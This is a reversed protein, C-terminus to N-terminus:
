DAVYMNCWQASDLAMALNALNFQGGCTMEDYDSYRDGDTDAKAPDTEIYNGDADVDQVGDCDLDEGMGTEAIWGDPLGDGDTDANAPDTAGAQEVSDPICDGDSDKEVDDDPDPTPEPGDEEGGLVMTEDTCDAIYNAALGNVIITLNEIEEAIACKGTEFSVESIDEGDSYSYTVAVGLIGSASECGEEGEAPPVYNLVDAGAVHMKVTEYDEDAIESSGTCSDTIEGDAGYLEITISIGRAADITIEKEKHIPTDTGLWRVTLEEMSNYDSISPDTGADWAMGRGDSHCAAFLMLVVLAAAIKYM